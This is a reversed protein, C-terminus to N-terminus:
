AQAASDFHTLLTQGLNGNIPKDYHEAFTQGNSWGGAKLIDALPVQANVSYSNSATRSSYASFISVDIGADQLTSRIWRAVTSHHCAQATEHLQDPPTPRQTSFVNKHHLTQYLNGPLSPLRPRIIPNWHTDPTQWTSNNEPHGTYHLYNRDYNGAYM